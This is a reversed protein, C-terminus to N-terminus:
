LNLLTQIKNIYIETLKKKIAFLKIKYKKFFNFVSKM